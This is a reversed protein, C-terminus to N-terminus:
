AAHPAWLWAPALLMPSVEAQGSHRGSRTRHLILTSKTTQARAQPIVRALGGVQHNSGQSSTDGSGLWRAFSEIRIVMYNAEVAM